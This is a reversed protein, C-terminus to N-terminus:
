GADLTDAVPWHADFRRAQPAATATIIPKAAQGPEAASISPLLIAEASPLGARFDAASIRFADFWSATILARVLGRSVRGRLSM